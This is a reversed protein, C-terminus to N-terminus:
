GFRHSRNQNALLLERTVHAFEQGLPNASSKGRFTGSSHSRQQHATAAHHPRQPTGHQALVEADLKGDKDKLSDHGKLSSKAKLPAKLLKTTKGRPRAMSNTPLHQKTIVRARQCKPNKGQPKISKKRQCEVKTGLSPSFNKDRLCQNKVRSEIVNGQCDLNKRCGHKILWKQNPNM